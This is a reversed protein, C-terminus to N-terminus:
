KLVIVFSGQAVVGTVMVETILLCACAGVSAGSCGTLDVSAAM